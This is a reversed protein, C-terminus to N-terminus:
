NATDTESVDFAMLLTRQRESFNDDSIIYIRVTGDALKTAAIGEFNDVSVSRDLRFLTDGEHELSSFRRVEITNGFIPVYRRFLAYTHEDVTDLGTLNMRRPTRLVGAPDFQGGFITPRFLPTDAGDSAETGTLFYGDSFTLAELGNNEPLDDPLGSPALDGDVGLTNGTSVPVGRAAAGCADINFAAIRHDREFSVAALGFGVHLGEADSARKGDLLKGDPGRMYSIAGTGSPAGAVLDIQVFAGADSVSLLNGDELIDLGSLGGFNPEDSTLHWGGIYSVAPALAKSVADRPGLDIPIADLSIPQPPAYAEGEPCSALARNAAMEPFSPTVPQATVRADELVGTIDAEQAPASSNGSCGAVLLVAGLFGPRVAPM